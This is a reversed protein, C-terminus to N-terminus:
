TLTARAQVDGTVEVLIEDGGSSAWESSSWRLRNIARPSSIKVEKAKIEATDVAELCGCWTHGIEECREQSSRRRRAIRLALLRMQWDYTALLHHGPLKREKIDFPDPLPQTYHLTIPPPDFRSVNHKSQRCEETM